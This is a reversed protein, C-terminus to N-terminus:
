SGDKPLRDLGQEHLHLADHGHSKLFSWQRHNLVRKYLFVLANM